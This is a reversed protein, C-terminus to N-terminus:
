KTRSYEDLFQWVARNWKADSLANHEGKVQAPLEPDGLQKCWQKLDMAYMPLGRPLDMMTGFIQCLVVWDYDGYYVWLEPKPMDHRLEYSRCDIDSNSPECGLFLALDRRIMQRPMWPSSTDIPDPLPLQKIVNEKVWDNAQTLDCDSNIRYFERGDECVIGISILEITKGDEIFESDIYFKM